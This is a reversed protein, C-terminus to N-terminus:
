RRADVLHPRPQHAQPRCGSVRSGLPSTSGTRAKAAPGGCYAQVLNRAGGDRHLAPRRSSRQPAEWGGPGVKSHHSVLWWPRLSDRLYRVSLQDGVELRDQELQPVPEVVLEVQAGGVEDGRILAEVEGSLKLCRQGVGNFV